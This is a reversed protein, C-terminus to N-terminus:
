PRDSIQFPNGDPDKGDCFTLDGSKLVRGMRAGRAALAERLAPVDEAHFALKPPRRGLMRSGQHLAIEVPGAAFSKWGAEEGALPLGLVDGYFAAMAAMNDTFIIIRRLKLAM